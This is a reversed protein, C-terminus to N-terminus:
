RFGLGRGHVVPNHDLDRTFRDILEKTVSDMLYIHSYARKKDGVFLTENSLSYKFVIRDNTQRFRITLAHPSHEIWLDLGEHAERVDAFKELAYRAMDEGRQIRQVLDEVSHGSIFDWTSYLCQRIVKKRSFLSSNKLRRFICTEMLM